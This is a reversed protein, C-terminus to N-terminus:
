PNGPPPPPLDGPPPRKGEFVKVKLGGKFEPREGRFEGGDRPPGSGPAGPGRGGRRGFERGGFREMDYMWRLQRHLDERELGELRERRPDDSSMGTYFRMLEEHTPPTYNWARSYIAARMLDNLWQDRQDTKALASVRTRVEPSLSAFLQDFDAKSPAPMDRERHRLHRHWTRLLQRHREVDDRISEIRERSDDELKHLIKKENRGVFEEVWTYIADRDVKRVEEQVFQTFRDKEQQEMLEKIKEIREKPDAIKLIAGRQGSSLNALWRNYRRITEELKAANPESSVAKHLEVLRIRENSKLHEFREKKGLLEAKQEDSMQRIRAVRQEDTEDGRVLGGPLLALAGCAFVFQWSGRWRNRAM